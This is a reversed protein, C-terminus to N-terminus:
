KQRRDYDAYARKVCRHHKVTAIMLTAGAVGVGWPGSALGGAFGIAVTALYDDDCAGLDSKLQEIYPTNHILNWSSLFLSSLASENMNLLSPYKHAITNLRSHMTDILNIVNDVNIFDFATLVNSIDVIDEAQEMSIIFNEYDFRSDIEAEILDKLKFTEFYFNQFDSDLHLFVTENMTLM